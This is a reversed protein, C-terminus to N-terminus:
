AANQMSRDFERLVNALQPEKVLKVAQSPAIWILKRSEQEPWSLLQRDAHLLYVDVRCRVWSFLHLRKTYTFNGIPNSGIKGVVGAEEFAEREALLSNSVGPKPWGKPVTWRGTGRTTILLLLIGSETEVYPLAAVQKLPKLERLYFNYLFNRNTNEFLYGLLAM